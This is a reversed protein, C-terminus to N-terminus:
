NCAHIKLLRAHVTGVTMQVTTLLSVPCQFTKLWLGMLLCFNSWCLFKLMFDSIIVLMYSFLMQNALIHGCYMHRWICGWKAAMTAAQSCDIVAINWLAAHSTLPWNVILLRQCIRLFSRNLITHGLIVVMCQVKLPKLIGRSPSGNWLQHYSCHHKNFFNGKHWLNWGM